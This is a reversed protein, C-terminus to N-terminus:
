EWSVNFIETLWADDLFNFSAPMPLRDNFQQSALNNEDPLRAAETESPQGGNLEQAWTNRVNTLMRTITIFMDEEFRSRQVNAQNDAAQRRIGVEDTAALIRDCVDFLDIDRRLITRDWSPENLSSLKYLAMLCQALQCWHAFSLGLYFDTVSQFFIDFWAKICGVIQSLVEYRRFNPKDPTYPYQSLGSELIVLESYNLQLQIMVQWLM